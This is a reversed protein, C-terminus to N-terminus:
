VRWRGGMGGGESDRMSGGERELDKDGETGRGGKMVEM